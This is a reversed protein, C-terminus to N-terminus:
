APGRTLAAMVSDSCILVAATVIAVQARLEWRDLVAKLEPQILARDLAEPDSAVLEDPQPRVKRFCASHYRDTPHDPFRLYVRGRCASCTCASPTVEVVRRREGLQPGSAPQGSVRYWPDAIFCEAIDGAQWDQPDISPLRSRGPVLRAIRRILRRGIHSLRGM